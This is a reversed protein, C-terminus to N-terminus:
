FSPICGQQKVASNESFVLLLCDIWYNHWMFLFTIIFFFCFLLVYSKLFFHLFSGPATWICGLFLFHVTPLSFNRSELRAVCMSAEATGQPYHEPRDPTQSLNCFLCLPLPRHFQLSRILRIHAIISHLYRVCFQWHCCSAFRLVTLPLVFKLFVCLQLLPSVFICLTFLHTQKFAFFLLFFFPSFSWYILWAGTHKRRDQCFNRRQIPFDWRQM